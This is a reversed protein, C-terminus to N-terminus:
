ALAQSPKVIRFPVKRRALRLLERDKTVLADARSAAALALFKQDDPDACAPLAAGTAKGKFQISLLRFAALCRERGQADLTWRGIDYSLVRELEDACPDDVMIEITGAEHARKLPALAADDFVLWDLWVNTDLVLRV